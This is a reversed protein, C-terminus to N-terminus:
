YNTPASALAADVKQQQETPSLLGLYIVLTAVTMIQGFVESIVQSIVNGLLPSILMGGLASVLGLGGGVFAVFLGLVFMTGFIRGRMGKTMRWSQTLAEVPWKHEIAAVPTGLAFGLSIIVCPIILIFFLLLTVGIMAASHTAFGIGMPIFALLMLGFSALTALLLSLSVRVWRSAGWRYSEGISPARGTRLVKLVAYIVTPPILSWRVITFILYNLGMVTMGSPDGTNLRYILAAQGLAFPIAAFLVLKALLLFNNKYISFSQSLATGVDSFPQVLAGVEVAAGPVTEYVPPAYTPPVDMPWAVPVSEPARAVDQVALDGAAYASVQANEETLPFGCRECQAADAWNVLKCNPCKRNNM